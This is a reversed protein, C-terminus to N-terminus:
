TQFARILLLIQLPLLLYPIALLFSSGFEELTYPNFLFFLGSVKIATPNIDYGELLEPVVKIYAIFGGTFLMSCLIFQTIGSKVALLNTFLEYIFSYPFLTWLNGGSNTGYNGNSWSYVSTLSDHAGKIFFSVYSQVPADTISLLFPLIIVFGCILAALVHRRSFHEKM